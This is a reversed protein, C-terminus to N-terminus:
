QREATKKVLAEAEQWLLSCPMYETLILLTALRIALVATLLEALLSVV